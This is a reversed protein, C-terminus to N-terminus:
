RSITLGSEWQKYEVPVSASCSTMGSLGNRGTSIRIRQENVPKIQRGKGEAYEYASALLASKCSQLLADTEPIFQYRSHQVTITFGKPNDVVNYDSNRDLENMPRQSYSNPYTCAALVALMLISLTKM